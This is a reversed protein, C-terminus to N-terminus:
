SAAGAPRSAHAFRQPETVSARRRRVILFAAGVGMWFLAVVEPTALSSADVAPRWPAQALRLGGFAFAFREPVRDPAGRALLVHLATWGGAEFLPLLEGAGGRCCGAPLCGLRALALGAPLSAFAAAHRALALAGLPFFLVSLEADPALIRGPDGWLLSHGARALLVGACLAWAFRTRARPDASRRLHMGIALWFGACWAALQLVVPTM